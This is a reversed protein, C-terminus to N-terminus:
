KKHSFIKNKTLIGIFYYVPCFNIFATMMLIAAIALLIIGEVGSIIGIIYLSALLISLLIRVTGDTNSINSKM